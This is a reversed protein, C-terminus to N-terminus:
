LVQLRKQLHKVVHHLGTRSLDLQSDMHGQIVSKALVEDELVVPRRKIFAIITDRVAHEESFKESDLADRIALSLLGEGVFRGAHRYFNCQTAVQTKSMARAALWWVVGKPTLVDTSSVGDCFDFGRYSLGCKEFPSGKGIDGRGHYFTTFFTNDNEPSAKFFAALATMGEAWDEAKKVYKKQHTLGLISGTDIINM